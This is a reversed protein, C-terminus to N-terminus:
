DLEIIGKLRNAQEAATKIKRALYKERQKQLMMNRVKPIQSKKEYNERRQQLIRNKIEPNQLRLKKIPYRAKDRELIKDKNKEYWESRYEQLHEKNIKAWNKEYEKREPSNMREKYKPTMQYNKRTEQYKPTYYRAKIEPRRAWQRRAEKHERNYERKQELLKKSNTKLYQDIHTGMFGTNEKPSIGFTNMYTTSFSHEPLNENYSDFTMLPPGVVNIEDLQLAKPINILKVQQKKVPYYKQLKVQQKKVPYYKQQFEKIPNLSYDRELAGPIDILIDNSKKIAFGRRPSKPITDIPAILDLEEQNMGMIKERNQIQEERIKNRLDEKVAREGFAKFKFFEASNIHRKGRERLLISNEPRPEHLGRNTKYLSVESSVYRENVYNYPILEKDGVQTPYEYINPNLLSVHTDVPTPTFLRDFDTFSKDVFGIAKLTSPELNAKKQPQQQEVIDDAMQDLDM